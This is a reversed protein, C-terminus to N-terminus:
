QRALVIVVEATGSDKVVSLGNSFELGAEISKSSITEGGGDLVDIAVSAMKDETGSETDDYITFKGGGVTGTFLIFREIKGSGTYAQGTDDLHVSNKNTTVTM